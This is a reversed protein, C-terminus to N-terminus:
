LVGSIATNLNGPGSRNILPVVWEFEVHLTKNEFLAVALALVHDSTPTIRHFQWDKTDGPHRSSFEIKPKGHTLDFCFADLPISFGGGHAKVYAEKLTWLTYFLSKQGAADAQMFARFESAALVRRALPMLNLSLGTHEVDVGIEPGNSVACVVLGNTHSINFQLGQAHKPAVVRPKGAPEAIFRWRHFPNGTHHSLVTRLLVRSVIFQDRTTDAIMCELRSVEDPALLQRYATRQAENISSLQTMWVKVYCQDSQQALNSTLM